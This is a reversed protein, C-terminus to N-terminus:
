RRFRLAAILQWGLIACGLAIATLAAWRGPVPEPPPLRPTSPPHRTTRTPVPPHAESRRLAKGLAPYPDVATGDPRLLEFHLHPITREANGSDGVWGILQGATVSSGRELEAVVGAGRGDDTGPTDNNLHLYRSSWGDDHRISIACCRGRSGDRIWRVEGSAAAVVPTGKAAGIDVGEHLRGDPRPSAFRDVFRVEGTVPFQLPYSAATRHKQDTTQAEVALTIALAAYAFFAALTLSRSSPM